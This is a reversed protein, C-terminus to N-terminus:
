NDDKKSKKNILVFPLICILMMVIGIITTGTSMKKLKNYILNFVYSYIM